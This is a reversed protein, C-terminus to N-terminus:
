RILINLVRLNHNEPENSWRLAPNLLSKWLENNTATAMPQGAKTMGVITKAAKRYERVGQKPDLHLSEALSLICRELGVKQKRAEAVDDCTWAEVVAPVHFCNWIQLHDFEADVRRITVECAFKM